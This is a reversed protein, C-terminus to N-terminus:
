IFVLQGFIMFIILESRSLLLGKDSPHPINGHVSRIALVIFLHIIRLIIIDIEIFQFSFKIVERM